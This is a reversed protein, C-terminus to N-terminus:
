LEYADNIVLHYIISAEAPEFGESLPSGILEHLWSESIFYNRYIYLKVAQRDHKQVAVLHHFVRRIEEAKRAQNPTAM